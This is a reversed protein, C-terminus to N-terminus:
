QDSTERVMNAVMNGEMVTSGYFGDNLSFGARPGNVCTNNALYTGGTVAQMYCSTEKGNVGVDHMWNNHISNNIPFTPATGDILNSVGLSIIASEGPFGFRNHSITANAVHRSLLLGNGGVRDFHCGSVIVHEANEIVVAANRGVAWDGGDPIEYPAMRTSATATIRLGAIMVHQVPQAATGQIIFASDHVAAVTTSPARPANSEGSDSTSANPYYRLTRTLPDLHWELPATMEELIGDVFFSNYPLFGTSDGIQWGGDGLLVTQRAPEVGRIWYSQTGWGQRYFQHFRGTRNLSPHSWTKNTWINPDSPWTFATPVATFGHRSHPAWPLLSPDSACPVTCPLTPGCTYEVQGWKSKNTSQKPKVCMGGPGSFMKLYGGVSMDFGTPNSTDSGSSLKDGEAPAFQVSCSGKCLGNGGYPDKPDSSNGFHRFATANGGRIWGQCGEDAYSARGICLGSTQEPNADPFRALVARQGDVFLTTFNAPVGAPLKAEFATSGDLHQYSSWKMGLAELHVGSSITVNEDAYSSYTVPAAASAGSDAATLRLAQPLYYTGGRIFVATSSRDAVATKRIEDRARGLTSFPSHIDGNGSSDSGDTSVFIQVAPGLATSVGDTATRMAGDCKLCADLHLAAHLGTTIAASGGPGNYHSSALEVALCKVACDLEEDTKLVHRPLLPPLTSVTFQTAVRATCQLTSTGDDIRLLYSGALVIESGQNDVIILDRDSIRLAIQASGNPEIEQTRNFGVMWERPTVSFGRPLTGQFSAFMLLVNAGARAGINTVRAAITAVSGRTLDLSCSYGQASAFQLSFTTYSFGFGFRWLPPSVSENLYRYSYGPYGLTPAISMSNMCSTPCLTGWKEPYITATLRGSPNSIGFLADVVAEAGQEGGFGAALVAVHSTNKAFDISVAGGGVVVIVTPKGVALVATALAAQSGPLGVSRRDHGEGNTDYQGGHTADLGLVLVTVDAASALAVASTNTENKCPPGDDCGSAFSTTSGGNAATIAQLVTTLCWAGVKVEKPDMWPAQATDNAPCAGPSYDGLFVDTRNALPGIVAIAHRGPALPLLRTQTNQLLVISQAAAERALQQHDSGHVVSSDNLRLFPQSEISDFFGLTIRHKLIRRAAERVHAGDIDGNDVSTQLHQKYVSDCEVDCTGRM